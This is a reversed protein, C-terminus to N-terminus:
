ACLVLLIRRENVSAFLVSGFKDTSKEQVFKILCNIQNELKIKRKRVCEDDNRNEVRSKKFERRVSETDDDNQM